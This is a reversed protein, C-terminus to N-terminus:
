LLKLIIFRKWKIWNKLKSCTYLILDGKTKYYYDLIDQIEDQSIPDELNLIKIVSLEKSWLNPSIFNIKDLEKLKLIEEWAREKNKKWYNSHAYLVLSEWWKDRKFIESSLFNKWIKDNTGIFNNIVLYPNKKIELINFNFNLKWSDKLNDMFYGWSYENTNKIKKEETVLVPNVIKEPEINKDTEYNILNPTLVFIEYNKLKTIIWSYCTIKFLYWFLIWITFTILINYYNKM